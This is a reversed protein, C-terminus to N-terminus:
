AMGSRGSRLYTAVESFDREAGITAAAAQLVALNTEAGPMPAGVERALQLALRLDKQALELSFAPPVSAPDLFAAKKYQVFPAGVVSAAFVEYARERPVGAREALVLAEALAANLAMVVTNVALKITAGAGLPGLHFIRASFADLVPRARELDHAEGGVMLTLQGAEATPVSGSVPSDLIG